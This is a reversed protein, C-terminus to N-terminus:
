GLHVLNPSASQGPQHSNHCTKNYGTFPANCPPFNYLYYPTYEKSNCSKAGPCGYSGGQFSNNGKDSTFPYININQPGCGSDSYNRNCCSGTRFNAYPTIRGIVENQTPTSAPNFNCPNQLNYVDRIPPVWPLQSM